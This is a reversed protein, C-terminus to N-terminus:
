LKLLEAIVGATAYGLGFLFLMALWANGFIWDMGIGSFIAGFTTLVLILFVAISSVLKVVQGIGGSLKVFFRLVMGLIVAIASGTLM